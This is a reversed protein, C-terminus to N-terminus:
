KAARNTLQGLRAREQQIADATPPLDGAHKESAWRQETAVIQDLLASTKPVYERRVGASTGPLALLEDLTQTANFLVDTYERWLRDREPHADLRRRFVDIRRHTYELAAAMDGQRARISVLRDYGRALATMAFDNAPDITAIHERLAVAQEIWSSGREFDGRAILLAGISAQSFSLDLLWLPNAPDKKVRAQDLALAKEYLPTAEPRRHLMELLAGMQKYGLSLNRNESPDGPRGRTLEETAELYRQQSSVAGAYDHADIQRNAVDNWVEERVSLGDPTSREELTLPEIITRARDLHERAAAETPDSLSLIALLKAFYLRDTLLGRRPDALPELLAV